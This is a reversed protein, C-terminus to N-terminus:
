YKWCVILQVSLVDNCFSNCSNSMEILLCIFYNGCQSVVLLCILSLGFSFLKFDFDEYKAVRFEQIGMVDTYSM